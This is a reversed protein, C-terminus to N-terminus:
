DSVTVSITLTAGSDAPNPTISVATINPAGTDLVVTRAISTTLGASDTATVLITNSGEALTLAKSFSGSSVTVAGQDVGNLKIAVSVPSSTVDSTAGSVTVNSNNTILNDAPASISLVPPVTDVIFALSSTAAQNGDNDKIDVAITHSGESLTSQCVYSCNYGGTVATCTMGTATNGVVSGGDIKLALSSINIGSGNTEDRLQFSISPKSNTVKAGSVPSTIAITPKTTEKVVLKLSSGLTSDSDDKTTSNGAQDTATVTVPYYHGANVNYSTNSPATITGEWKGSTSNYTLNYTQGNIVVKVTSVAM